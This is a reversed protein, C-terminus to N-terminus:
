DRPVEKATVVAISDLFWQALTKDSKKNAQEITCKPSIKIKCSYPMKVEWFTLALLLLAYHIIPLVSRVDFDCIRVLQM